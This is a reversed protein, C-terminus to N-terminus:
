RAIQSLLMFYGAGAGLSASLLIMSYRRMRSWASRRRHYAERSMGAPADDFLSRWRRRTRSLRWGIWGGIVALALPLWVGLAM